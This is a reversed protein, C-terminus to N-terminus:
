PASRLVAYELLQVLSLSLAVMGLAAGVTPWHVDLWPGHFLLVCLAIGEFAVGIQGSPRAAFRRGRLAGWLFGVVAILDRLLVLVVLPLPAYGVVALAAWTFDTLMKDAAPDLLLALDSVAGLRRAVFGDVMDTCVAFLFLWFATMNDGQAIVLWAVVPGCLGRLSTIANPIHKTM